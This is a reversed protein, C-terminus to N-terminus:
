VDLVSVSSFLDSDEFFQELDGCGLILPDPNKQRKHGSSKVVIGRHHGMHGDIKPNGSLLLNVLQDADHSRVVIVGHLFDCGIVIFEGLSGRFILLVTDNSDSTADDAEHVSEVVFEGLTQLVDVWVARLVDFPELILLEQVRGDSPSLCVVFLGRGLTVRECPHNHPSQFMDIRLNTTM